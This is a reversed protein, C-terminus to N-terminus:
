TEIAFIQETTPADASRQVVVIEQDKNVELVYDNTADSISGDHNILWREANGGDCLHIGLIDTDKPSSKRALCISRRGDPRLTGDSYILWYQPVSTDNGKVLEVSDNGSPQMYMGNYSLIPTVLAAAETGSSNRLSWGQRSSYSIQDVTLVSRQFGVYANLALKHDKNIINGNDHVEWKTSSYNPATTCNHIMVYRDPKLRYATLCKGHCRITGDKMLTFLQNGNNTSKCPWLIIPNGDEYSSKPVHACLGNRGILNVTPEKKPCEDCVYLVFAMLQDLVPYISSIPDFGPLVYAPEIVGGVSEQIRTSLVIWNEQLAMMARTPIFVSVDAVWKEVVRYRIAESILQKAQLVFAGKDYELNPDDYESINDHVKQMYDDLQNVGLILSARRGVLSHEIASYSSNFPLEERSFGSFVSSTYPENTDPFFYATANLLYGVLNANARDLALVFHAGASSYLAVLLFRDSESLNAPNQLRPIGHVKDISLMEERVNQIFKQYRESARGTDTDFPIVPYFKLKEPIREPSMLLVDNRATCSSGVLWAAAVAFVLLRPVVKPMIRCTFLFEM